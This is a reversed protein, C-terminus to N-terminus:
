SSANRPNFGTPERASERALAYKPNMPNMTRSSRMEGADGLTTSMTETPPNTPPSITRPRTINKTESLVSWRRIAPSFCASRPRSRSFNLGIRWSGAWGIAGFSIPCRKRRSMCSRFTAAIAVHGDSTTIMPRSETIANETVAIRIGRTRVRTKLIQPSVPHVHFLGVAQRVDCQDRRGGSVSRRTWLLAAGRAAGARSDLGERVQDEPQRQCDIRDSQEGSGRRRRPVHVTPNEDEREREQEQDRRPQDVRRVRGHERHVRERHREKVHRQEEQDGQDWVEQVVDFEPVVRRNSVVRGTEKGEVERSDQRDQRNERVGKADLVM